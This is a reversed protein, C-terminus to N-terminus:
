SAISKVSLSIEVRPFKGSDGRSCVSSRARLRMVLRCGVRAFEMGFRVHRMRVWFLRASSASKSVSLCKVLSVCRDSSSLGTVLFSTRPLGRAGLLDNNQYKRCDM